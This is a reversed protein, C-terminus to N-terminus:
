RRRREPPGQAPQGPEQAQRAFGALLGEAGAPSDEILIGGRGIVFRRLSVDFDGDRLKLVSIIRHLEARFEVYRMLILNEAKSSVDSVPPRITPGLLESSESTYLTTAGCVRLENALATVFQEMREPEVAAKQFGGLGDIFVRSATHARVADLLRSGLADLLHETPPHWLIKVVGSDILAALALNRERARAHIRDPTEYFGFFLGPEAPSAKSLFATGLTTKGTGSPGLVMTTSNAPLGGGLMEDLRAVGISVRPRESASPPSPMSPGALLMEIRPYVTVGNEDIGFSHRGRLFASGRFKRVLVDRDARSGYQRDSLDILGDVMTQEPTVEDTIGSTLLFMTCDVIGARTQLLHIFKKFELGPGASEEASVLGDLILVTAQRAQVERMLLDSLGKLGEKELASFGSAYYVRDPVMAPDYFTLAGLHLMMRAHSEALLTVYLARQGQAAHHYCIQNAFVTKGAGPAGRIIYLGGRLFGGRLVVDMGPVGSPVRPISGTM